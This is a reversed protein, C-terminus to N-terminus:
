VGGERLMVIQKGDQILPMSVESHGCYMPYMHPCESPKRCLVTWKGASSVDYRRANPCKVPSFRGTARMHVGTVAPLPVIEPLLLCPCSLPYSFVLERQTGHNQAPVTCYSAISRGKNQKGPLNLHVGYRDTHPPSLILCERSATNIIFANDDSHARAHFSVSTLRTEASSFCQLILFIYANHDTHCCIIAIIAIDDLNIVSELLYLLLM